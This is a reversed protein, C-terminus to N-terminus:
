QYNITMISELKQGHYKTAHRERIALDEALDFVVIQKVDNRQCAVFLSYSYDNIQNSSKM